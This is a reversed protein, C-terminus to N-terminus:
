AAQHLLDHLWAAPVERWMGCGPTFRSFTSLRSEYWTPQDIHVLMRTACTSRRRRWPDPPLSSRLQSIIFIFITTTLACGTAPVPCALRAQCRRMRGLILGMRGGNGSDSREDPSPLEGDIQELTSVAVRGPKVTSRSSKAPSPEGLLLRMCWQGPGARGRCCCRQM